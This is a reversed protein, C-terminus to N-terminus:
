AVKTVPPEPKIEQQDVAQQRGQTDIVKKDVTNRQDPIAAKSRELDAPQQYTRTHQTEFSRQRDSADDAGKDGDYWNIIRETGRQAFAATSSLISLVIIFISVARM